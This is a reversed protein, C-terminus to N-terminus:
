GLHFHRALNLPFWPVVALGYPLSYCTSTQSESVPATFAMVACLLPGGLRTCGKGPLFRSRCAQVWIPEPPLALSVAGSAHFAPVPDLASVSSLPLIYRSKAPNAKRQSEALGLGAWLPIKESRTAKCKTKEPFLLQPFALISHGKKVAWHTCLSSFSFGLYKM